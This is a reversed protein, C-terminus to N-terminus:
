LNFICVHKLANSLLNNTYDIFRLKTRLYEPYQFFDINYLILNTQM